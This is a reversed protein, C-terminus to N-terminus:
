NKATNLVSARWDSIEKSLRPHGIKTRLQLRTLLSPACYLAAALERCAGLYAIRGENDIDLKKILSHVESPDCYFALDGFTAEFRHPLIVPIGVLNAEVITRGFAEYREPSPFNVFVDLSELYNQVGDPGFPLVDWSSPLYGLMNEVTNAGGLIKVKIEPDDPPYVTLLDVANELWKGAHDRAHRGIVIPRGFRPHPNFHFAAEDVVPPWDRDSMIDPVSSGFMDRSSEERIIPGTPCLETRPWDFAAVRKHLDPWAFIAGGQENRASNNVVFVANNAQIKPALRAFAATLMVRPARVIVTECRIKAVWHASILRDLIPLYREAVENWKWRSRKISCHVVAVTLGAAEFAQVETVTTASNGGPYACNTVICIDVDLHRRAKGNDVALPRNKKHKALRGVGLWFADHATLWLSGGADNKKSRHQSVDM